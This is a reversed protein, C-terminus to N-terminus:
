GYDHIPFAAHAVSPGASRDEGNTVLHLFVAPAGALEGMPNWPDQSGAQYAPYPYQQRADAARGTGVPVGSRGPRGVEGRSLAAHRLRSKCGGDVDTAPKNARDSKSERSDY